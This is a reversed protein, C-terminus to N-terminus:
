YGCIVGPNTDLEKSGVEAREGKSIIIWKEKGEAGIERTTRSSM